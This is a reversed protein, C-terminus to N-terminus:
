GSANGEPTGLTTADKTSNGAAAKLDSIEPPKVGERTDM